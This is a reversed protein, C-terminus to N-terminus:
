RQLIERLQRAFEDAHLDGKTERLTSRATNVAEIFGKMADTREISMCLTTGSNGLADFVYRKAFDKADQLTAPSVSSTPLGDDGSASVPTLTLSFPTGKTPPPMLPRLPLLAEAVVSAGLSGLHRMDRKASAAASASPEGQARNAVVTETGFTASIASNERAIESQVAQLKAVYAADLEILGLEYLERLVRNVDGFAGGFRRLDSASRKGDVMILLARQSPTLGSNQKTFTATGLASKRFVRSM